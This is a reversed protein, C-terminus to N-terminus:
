FHHHHRSWEAICAILVARIICLRFSAKLEIDYGPITFDLALDEIIPLGLKRRIKDTQDPQPIMGRLAVLSAALEADVRQLSTLFLGAYLPYNM